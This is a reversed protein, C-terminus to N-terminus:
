PNFPLPPGLLLSLIDDVLYRVAFLLEIISLRVDGNSKSLLRPRPLLM